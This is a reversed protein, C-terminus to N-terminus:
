LAFAIYYDGTKTLQRGGGGAAIVVLQKGDVKYTAPTAYGGCPLQYEWLIKGTTKEIARFKEDQSAGIFVLGGATVIGGGFLQTGTNHHGKAALEPFEGLPIKWVLDGTNLDVANLTGWPPKVGPYGNQDKLQIYGKLSYRKKAEKTIVNAKSDQNKSQYLREDKLKFLFAIIADKDQEPLANFSPMMGRPKQLMSKVSGPKFRNEINLLPPFSKNGRLDNGHCAACNKKYLIEGAKILPMAALEESSEEKHKVLQVINPIDNIGIYMIGTERDVCAGSWEAGGRLGPMVITGEMSPPLYINGWAYKKAENLVYNHAEPSINTIISEDFTQRCLPLPKAPIPQTPWSQEGPMTSVAVPKEEISFLPTGTERDFLFIYGQKTIQAVADVTKGDKNITILNPPAPLDYDWLDHHSVQYHWILKGTAADLAIVSNGFLNQGIREGGHFDFAPAGTAAFVIGRKSDISLGSWANCGGTTKYSDKEWTDYGFEGPQPITHFIWKMKGTRVDYARIHGPSSEYDEGVASGTIILDKYIVGPSTNGVDEHHELGDNSSLGKNLDIYGSDGFNMIQKGTKSDLAILKNAAFMFIRQEDGNKWYTLGRCFGGNQSNKEFPDFVWLEKGTKADLAFTKLRPSIGYLINNIIIPSCELTSYDSKDGTRYIWAVKLEKVNETNIQDLQSYANSGEDGRYIRWSTFETSSKKQCSALFFSIATAFLLYKIFYFGPKCM